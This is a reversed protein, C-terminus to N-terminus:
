WAREVGVVKAEGRATKRLYVTVTKEADGTASLKAAFYGGAPASRWAAPLAFDREGPLERHTDAANDFSSWAVSYDRKPAFGHEVLLDSFELRGDRVEFRDLALVKNFYKRGIRDRREVLAQTIYAVAGPDSYQGTEVVARIEEESFAMVHTAAWYEDDPLRRLFAPNPFNSVWEDPDFLRSQFRGVGGINPYRVLEWDRPIVGFSFMRRLTPGGRLLMPEHGLRPDKAADSDSGLIAGFDILHHRIFRVGDEEVLTDLTNNAKSDTHNLWAAFVHLGRLDRRDEHPVIDNPDDKRVGEFKFPGLPRGELALSALLRLKGDPTRPTLKIVEDLDRENMPRTQGGAGQIKSDESVFFDGRTGLLVYNQPTHYGLAHFLKTGVVDAASALEPYRRPDTKVFYLRGDADRIRFGPTVGETKAGTVRFPATPAQDDGPGRRLEDLSMRNRGHRNVFWESDPVEGLTNVAGAPTPPTEHNRLSQFFFDFLDSLGRERVADAPMPPPMREIPDDDFFRPGGSAEPPGWLAVVAISVALFRKGLFAM